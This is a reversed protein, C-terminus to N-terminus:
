FHTIPKTQRLPAGHEKMCRIGMTTVKRMIHAVMPYAVQQAERSLIHKAEALYDEMYMIWEEPSHYNKSTTTNENWRQNQYEIESNIAEYVEELEPYVISKELDTLSKDLDEVPTRKIEDLNLQVSVGPQDGINTQM